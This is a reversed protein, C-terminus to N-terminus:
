SVVEIICRRLHVLDRPVFTSRSRWCRGRGSTVAGGGGAPGNTYLAKSRTASADPPRALRRAAAVRLACKTRSAAAVGSLRGGHLADVGILDCRLERQSLGRTLRLREVVIRGRWGPARSRVPARCLLDARRRHLRRSLRAVGEAYRAAHRGTAGDVRVRDPASRPSGCAPQFGRRRGAHHLRGSRSDRLAAAGQLDGGDGARRIGGGQHHRGPRRGAGRRASLWSPESGDVDKVGPIPSTAAPSRDPASSCTASSRAADSRAALRGTSWGLECRWRRRRVAVSRRRARHDRCRRRPRAGRRDARRRHLRQGLRASGRARGRAAGTEAITFAGGTVLDCCTTAPRRDRDLARSPGLRRAVDRVLRRRRPPIPRAWTPSSPSATTSAPRCCRRSGRRSCRITAARRIARAQAQQALAITREALCEFVLYDLDGQTALEM